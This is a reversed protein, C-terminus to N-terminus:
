NVLFAKVMETPFVYTKGDNICRALWPRKPALHRYDTLVYTKGGTRIMYQDKVPAGAVVLGTMMLMTHVNSEAKAAVVEPVKFEPGVFRVSGENYKANGLSLTLGREELFPKLHAELEFRLRQTTARDFRNIKPM